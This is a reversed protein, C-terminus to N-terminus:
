LQKCKEKAKDRNRTLLYGHFSFKFGGPNAQTDNWTQRFPLLKNFIPFFEPNAFADKHTEVLKKMKKITKIASSCMTILQVLLLSSEQLIQSLYSKRLTQIITLYAKFNQNATRWKNIILISFKNTQLVLNPPKKYFKRICWSSTQGLTDRNTM